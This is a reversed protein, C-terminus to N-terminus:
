NGEDGDGKTDKEVAAVAGDTFSKNDEVALEVLYKEGKITVGGKENIWDKAIEAGQEHIREMETSFGTLSCTFGIRLTKPAAVAAPELCFCFLFVVVL